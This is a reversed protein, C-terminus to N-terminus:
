VSEACLYSAPTTMYVNQNPDVEKSRTAGLLELEVEYSFLSNPLARFRCLISTDKVARLPSGRATWSVELLDRHSFALKELKRPYETRM